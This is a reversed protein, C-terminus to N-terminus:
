IIVSHVKLSLRDGFFRVNADKDTMAMGFILGLAWNAVESLKSRRQHQQQQQCGARSGDTAEIITTHDELGDHRGDPAPDHCQAVPLQLFVKLMTCLCSCCAKRVAAAKEAALRSLTNPPVITLLTILGETGEGAAVAQLVNVMMKNTNASSTETSSTRSTHALVRQLETTLAHCTAAHQLAGSSASSELLQAIAHEDVRHLTSLLSSKSHPNKWQPPKDQQTSVALCEAILEVANRVDSVATFPLMKIIAQCLLQLLADSCASSSYPQVHQKWLQTVAAPKYGKLSAAGRKKGSAAATVTAAASLLHATCAVAYERLELAEDSEDKQTAASSCCCSVQHLVKPVNIKDVDKVAAAASIIASFPVSSLKTSRSALFKAIQETHDASGHPAYVQLDSLDFRHLM